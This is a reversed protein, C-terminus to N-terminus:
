TTARGIMVQDLVEQVSKKFQADPAGTAKDVPEETDGEVDRHVTQSALMAATAASSLDGSRISTLIYYVIFNYRALIM